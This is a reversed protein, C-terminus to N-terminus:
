VFVRMEAGGRVLTWVTAQKEVVLTDLSANVAIHTILQISSASPMGTAYSWRAREWEADTRANRETWLGLLRPPHIQLVLFVNQRSSSQSTSVLLANLAPTLQPTSTIALPVYQFLAHQLQYQARVGPPSVKLVFRVAKTLGKGGIPDQLVPNVNVLLIWSNAMLVSKEVNKERCPM